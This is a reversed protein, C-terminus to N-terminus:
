LALEIDVRRDHAWGEENTGTADMEGRSTSRLRDKGVGLDILYRHVANARSEGLTMNYESEGRPDARGILAVSKGKLAGETLCKALEGLMKRDSDALAASDYDFSPTVGQSAGPKAEAGQQPGIGCAQAIVDSVTLNSTYIAPTQLPAASAEKSGVGASTTSAQGVPPQPAPAPSKAKSTFGPADCGALALTAALLATGTLLTLGQAM